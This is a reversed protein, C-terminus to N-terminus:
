VKTWGKKINEAVMADAIKSALAQDPALRVDRELPTARSPSYDTWHVVFAPYSPDLKEKNTKWILLKRLATQGKTEKTWVDRRIVKSAPLPADEPRPTHGVQLYGSVQEFRIDAPTATKDSRLREFVPHIPRPCPSIGRGLWGTKELTMLPTRTVSGDARDSQLDSVRIEAVLEPRVFTYLAGSESAYRVTSAITRQNLKAFLDKRTQDNGLNGCAGLIQVRGDQHMLGLLVSRVMDVQDSKVTFGVVAADITISPKLKYILGGPLRVILGEAQGTVVTSDFRARIQAAAQLMEYPICSVHSTSPLLASLRAHRAEYTAPPPAASQDRVLDFAAFALKDIQAKKGGGLAAALDGVRARRREVRAHLEGAVIVGDPISKTQALVPIDGAIVRGLPNVLLTQKGRGVLFWLEGDIKASVLMQGPPLSDIEEPPLPRYNGAIRRRYASLTEILPADEFTADILGKGLPRGGSVPKDPM